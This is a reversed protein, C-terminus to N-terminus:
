HTKSSFNAVDESVGNAKAQRLTVPITAASSMTGLATVYAPLMNKLLTVPSVGRKIGTAIFLTTLYLWHLILALLLVVGFTKIMTFASGDAAFNAFVGAIYIPLIPIIVKALLNDIIARGEDLGAKMTKAGCANVGLGLIFALMLASMVGFLPPIALDIYPMLGHSGSEVLEANGVLSPIFQAAVFFAIVGATITSIYAVAVTRGLLKGSDGQPLNAIGSSIFFLIILPIVFTILQGLVSQATLFIQILFDPGYMGILLGGIIGALLRLILQM